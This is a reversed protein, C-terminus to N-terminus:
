RSSKEVVKRVAGSRSGRNEGARPESMVLWVLNSMRAASVRFRLTRRLLGRNWPHWYFYRIEDILREPQRLEGVCRIFSYDCAFYDSHLRRLLPALLLARKYATVAFVASAFEAPDIGYRACYLEAFSKGPPASFDIM